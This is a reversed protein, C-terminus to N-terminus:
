AGEVEVEDVARPAGEAEVAAAEEQEVAAPLLVTSVLPLPLLASSSRTSISTSYPKAPSHILHTESKASATGRRPAGKRRGTSVSARLRARLCFFRTGREDISACAYKAVCGGGGEDAEDEAACGAGAAAAGEAGVSGVVAESSARKPGDEEDASGGAAEEEEEVAGAGAGVGAGLRAGGLRLAPPPSAPM